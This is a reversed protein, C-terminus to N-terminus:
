YNGHIWVERRLVELLLSFLAAASNLSFVSLFMDQPKNSSSIM